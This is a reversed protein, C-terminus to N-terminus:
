VGSRSLRQDLERFEAHMESALSDIRVTQSDLRATQSDIRAGLSAGLADIRGGLADIRAGLSAGQTDIRSLASRM